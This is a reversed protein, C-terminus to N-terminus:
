TTASSPLRVAFCSGHPTNPEYWTEGGNARALGQVISLGLGTGGTSSEARAFKGFLRPVFDEPVGDGNDRVRIEVWDGANLAQIAVPPSGYKLANRLFNVLIRQLHDPDALVTCDDADVSIDQDPSGFDDIIRQVEERLRIVETRTDLQGAEIRSVTLLDEVMRELHKAQRKIMSLFDARQVVSMDQWRADLLSSAGIISTLPGRLDHSAVAVFDRMAQNLVQLEQNAGTLELNLRNLELTSAYLEGTVREAISEAERRAKRERELRRRSADPDLPTSTM